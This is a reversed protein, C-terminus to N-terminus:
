YHQLVNINPNILKKLSHKVNKINESDYSLLNLNLFLIEKFILTHLINFIKLFFLESFKRQEVLRIILYLYSNIIKSM